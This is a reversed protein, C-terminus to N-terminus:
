RTAPAQEALRDLSVLSRGALAARVAFCYLLVIAAVGLYGTMSYWHETNATAVVNLVTSCFAMTTILLAGFRLVCYAIGGVLLVHVVLELVAMDSRVSFVNLLLVLVLWVILGRKLLIKILVMITTLMLVTFTFASMAADLLYALFYIARAQIEISSAILPKVIAGPVVGLVLAQKVLFLTISLHIGIVIDRGVAADRFEGKLLRTSSILYQPWFRRAFPETEPVVTVATEPDPVPAGCNACFRADGSIDASCGPCITM